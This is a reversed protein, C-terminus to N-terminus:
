KINEFVNQKNQKPFMYFAAGTPPLQDDWRKQDAEIKFYQGYMRDRKIRKGRKILEEEVMQYFTDRQNFPIGDAQIECTYPHHHSFYVELLRQVEEYVLATMDDM